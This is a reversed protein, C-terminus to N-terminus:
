VGAGVVGPGNSSLNVTNEELGVPCQAPRWSDTRSSHIDTTQSGKGVTVDFELSIQGDRRCSWDLHSPTLKICLFVVCEDRSVDQFLDEIARGSPGTRSLFALGIVIRTPVTSQMNIMYKRADGPLLPKELALFSVAAEWENDGGVDGNRLDLEFPLGLGGGTVRYLRLWTVILLSGTAWRSFM